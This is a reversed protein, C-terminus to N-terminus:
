EAEAAPLKELAFSVRGDKMPRSPPIIQTIRYDGDRLHISDGTRYPKGPILVVAKGFITNYEGIIRDMSIYRKFITKGSRLWRGLGTRASM